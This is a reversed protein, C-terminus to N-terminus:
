EFFAPTKGDMTFLNTLLLYQTSITAIPPRSLNSQGSSDRALQSRLQNRSAESHLFEDSQDVDGRQTVSVTTVKIPQGKMKIGNM